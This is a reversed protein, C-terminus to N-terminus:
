VRPESSYCVIIVFVSKAATANAVQHIALEAKACFWPFWPRRTLTLTPSMPIAARLLVVYLDGDSRPEPRDRSIPRSHRKFCPHIRIEPSGTPHPHSVGHLRASLRGRIEILARADLRRSVGSGLNTRAGILLTRCHSRPPDPASIHGASPMCLATAAAGEVSM